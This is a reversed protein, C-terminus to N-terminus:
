PASKAPVKSSIESSASKFLGKIQQGFFKISVLAAVAVLMVILAYETMSQGRQDRADGRGKRMDDEKSTCIM